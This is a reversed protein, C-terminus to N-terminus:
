AVLQLAQAFLQTTGGAHGVKGFAYVTATMGLLGGIALPNTLYVIAEPWHHGFVPQDQLAPVVPM